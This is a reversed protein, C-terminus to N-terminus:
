PVLDPLKAKADKGYDRLSVRIAVEQVQGGFSAKLDQQMGAIGFPVDRHRFVRHTMNLKVVGFELENQGSIVACELEGRQWIVKEKADDIKLNKRPGQFLITFFPDKLEFSEVAEPEMEDIKVWVKAAKSLPDKGEGFEEEPVLLRWTLNGLQPINFAPPANVTQEYEIFRCQKGDHFAQGVTRATATMVFEQEIAKVNVSFTVWAGDPPLTQMLAASEPEDAVAAVSVAIGVAVILTLPRTSM